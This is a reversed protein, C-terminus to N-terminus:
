SPWNSPWDGGTPWAPTSSGADDCGHTTTTVGNETCTKTCSKVGNMYNITTSCSSGWLDTVENAIVDEGFQKYSVLGICAASAALGLALLVNKKSRTQDKNFYM